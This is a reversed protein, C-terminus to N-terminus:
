CPSSGTVNKFAAVYMDPRSVELRHADDELGQDQEAEWQSRYCNFHYSIEASVKESAFDQDMCAIAKYLKHLGAFSLESLYAEWHTRDQFIFAGMRWRRPQPVIACSAM